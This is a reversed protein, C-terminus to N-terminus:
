CANGARLWAVYDRMAADISWQPAYGTDARLRAIDLALAPPPSEAGVMTPVHDALGAARVAAVFDRNRAAIGSGVNYVRHALAPATALLAIARACDAVYCWDGGDDPKIGWPVGDLDLPSSTAAARALRGVFSRNNRYRPGYIAGIRMVVCDLKARVAISEAYIETAKKMAVIPHPNGALPIAAAENAEAAQGYVGIASALCVRRVQWTSAAELVNGLATMADRLEDFPSTSLAGGLHVIGTIAHADGLALLAARDRLDVDVVTGRGDFFAPIDRPRHRPIVCSEGLDFLARVTHSGIFGLGGTVLIM